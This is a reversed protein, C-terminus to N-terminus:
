IEVEIKRSYRAISEKEIRDKLPQTYQTLGALKVAFVDHENCMTTIFHDLNEYTSKGLVQTYKDKYLYVTQEYDFINIGCAIMPKDIKVSM